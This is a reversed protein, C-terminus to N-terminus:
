VVAFDDATLVTGPTVHAFVVAAGVGSGDADYSLNGTAIDYVICQKATTPASETFAEALSTAVLGDHLGLGVFTNVAFGSWESSPEFADFGNADGATLLFDRRLTHDVTTISGSGWGAFSPDVGIQGIVDVIVGAKRLVVADNGNFNIVSSNLVDAQAIIAADALAHALVFVDGAAVVGSLALTSSPTSAGNSYLELSYGSAGLDLPSAMSNFLEIAKNSSTGEVYESIYLSGLALSSFIADDLVIQDVGHKFDTITDVNKASLPSDFVFTDKGLGGTLTDQGLGGNLTDALDGGSLTDNGSDGFLRDVGLGGDIQDAGSKGHIVDRGALGLLVDDGNSGAIRDNGALFLPLISDYQGANSFTLVDLANANGGTCSFVTVGNVVKTIATVASLLNGSFQTYNNLDNYFSIYTLTDTSHSAYAGLGLPDPASMDLVASLSIAAM